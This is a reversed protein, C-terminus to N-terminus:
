KKTLVLNFRSDYHLGLDRCLRENLEHLADRYAKYAPSLREMQPLFVDYYGSDQLRRMTRRKVVEWPCFRILPHRRLRITKLTQAKMREYAEPTPHLMAQLQADMQAATLAPMHANLRMMLPLRINPADWYDLIRAYADRQAETTIRINLYPAFHDAIYAGFAGPLQARMAAAVSAYDVAEDLAAADQTRLYTELADIEQQAAAAESRKKALIQELIGRGGGSRLKKIDDLGVGLKRYAQIEHLTRLDAETYDRYGNESRAVAPLLGKEEYFKIARQTCGVAQAAEHIRM